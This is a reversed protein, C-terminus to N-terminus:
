LATNARTTMEPPYDTVVVESEHGATGHDQVKASRAGRQPQLPACRARLRAAVYRVLRAEGYVFLTVFVLIVTCIVNFYLSRTLGEAISPTIVGEYGPWVYVTPPSYIPSGTWLLVAYTLTVCVILLSSACARRIGKLALEHSRLAARLPAQLPLPPQSPLLPQPLSPQSLPPLPEDQQEPSQLPQRPSGGEQLLPPPPPRSGQEAPAAAALGAHFHVWLGGGLSDRRVTVLERQLRLLTTASVALAALPFALVVVTILVYWAIRLQTVVARYGEGVTVPLSVVMVVACSWRATRLLLAGVDRRIARQLVIRELRTVLAILQLSILLVWSMVGALVFNFGFWSWAPSAIGANGHFDADLAICSLTVVLAYGVQVTCLSVGGASFAACPTNVIGPVLELILLLSLAAVVGCLANALPTYGAADAITTSCPLGTATSSLPFPCPGIDAEEPVYWM